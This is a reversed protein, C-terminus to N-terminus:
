ISYGDYGIPKLFPEGDASDVSFDELYMNGHQDIYVALDKLKASSESQLIKWEPANEEEEYALALAYDKDFSACETSCFGFISDGIHIAKGCHKCYINGQMGLKFAQAAVILAKVFSFTLVFPLLIIAAILKM